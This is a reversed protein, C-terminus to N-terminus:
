KRKVEGLLTVVSVELASALAEINDISVNREAREVSGVYTRHLRSLEGLKEQSLGKELRIRRLNQALIQRTSIGKSL